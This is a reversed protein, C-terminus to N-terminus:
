RGRATRPGQAPHFKVLLSFSEKFAIQIFKDLAANNIDSLPLNSMASIQYTINSLPSRQSVKIIKKM